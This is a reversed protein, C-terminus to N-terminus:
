RAVTRQLRDVRARVEAVKPQLDPDARQWLNVFSTYHSLARVNDGRAEYLEGLRKHAPLMMWADVYLRGVGPTALYRELNAITSDTMNAQDYALGLLASLCYRCGIPLGDGSLDAQRMLRVADSARREALAILGDVYYRTSQIRQRQTSDRAALDVQAVVARARDSAGLAAYTRAVNLMSAPPSGALPHARLLEDVRTVGRANQGRFWGDYFAADLIRNYPSPTEGIAKSRVEIEAEISDAEHLRGRVKALASVFAMANLGQGPRGRQLMARGFATASDVEGRAYLLDLERRTTSFPLKRERIVRVISDAAGVKGANILTGAYNDLIIGNEPELIVARRFAREARGYDRTNSYLLALSNLVDTDFSDVAVSRELAAIAKVRDKAFWYAGEVGYREAEPLRDRLSYAKNMLSDRRAAQRGLNGLSYALQV